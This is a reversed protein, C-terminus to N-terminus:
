ASTQQAAESQSAIEEALEEASFEGSSTCGYKTYLVCGVLATIPAITVLGFSGALTHLIEAAVYNLNLINPLPVGQGMFLMMMNLYSGSYALILTTTMSGIVARGIMIGSKLLAARTVTPHHRVIENMAASIDISLDMMAGSAGLFIGALFIRGLNLDMFGSFLLTESFSRTAGNIHLPGFFIYAIGCTVGLGVVAGMVAVVGKINVGAVLFVIVLTLITVIIFTVIIPDHGRLLNPILLKWMALATFAFSLVAQFGTFGAYLILFLAFSLMLYSQVRLRYQGAANAWVVKVGGDPTNELSVNMLARDGPAYLHDLELKGLFNNQAEVIKGKISDPGELIRVKLIQGGSLILGHQRFTSNDAEVIEGQLKLSRDPMRDEFGTPLFYLVVCCTLIFCSLIYDQRRTGYMFFRGFRRLYNM